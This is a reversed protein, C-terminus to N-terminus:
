LAKLSSSPWHQAGTAGSDPSLVSGDPHTSCYRRAEGWTRVPKDTQAFRRAAWDNQRQVSQVPQAPAKVALREQEKEEAAHSAKDNKALIM